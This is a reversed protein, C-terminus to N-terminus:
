SIPSGPPGHGRLANRVAMGGQKGLHQADEPIMALSYQGQSKPQPTQYASAPRAEQGTAPGQAEAAERTGEQQPSGEAPGPDAPPDEPAQAEPDLRQRKQTTSSRAKAKPQAQAKAKPKARAKAKPQAKAKAKPKAQARSQKKKGATAM